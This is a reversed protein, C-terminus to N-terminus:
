VKKLIQLPHPLNHKIILKDLAKLCEKRTQENDPYYCGTDYVQKNYTISGRIGNRGSFKNRVKYIHKM